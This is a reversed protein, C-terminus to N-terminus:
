RDRGSQRKEDDRLVITVNPATAKKRLYRSLEFM